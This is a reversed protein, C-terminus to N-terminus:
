ESRRPPRLKTELAEILSSVPVVDGYKTQIDRLNAVHAEPSRDGVCDEPVIVRFGHQLADVATARVCGSTTCGVVIVTDVHEYNLYSALATGFFASPFQKVLLPETAPQHALREDVEVHVSGPVQIALAPVKRVFHAGTRLSPDYQITTFYRPLGLGRAVDLLSRTAALEKSVESGLPSEPNTFGRIFDVVVIAPRDGIGSSEGFGSVPYSRITTGM